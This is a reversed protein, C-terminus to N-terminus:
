ISYTFNLLISNTYLNNLSLGSNMTQGPARGLESKGWDAFEYGLGIQWNDNIIQQVGVGLTYSFGMTTHSAFNSTPQAEFITPANTYTHAQNLGLGLSASIWPLTWYGRDALLKGKLAIGSHRIKYQYNHNNFQLNTDDWIKGQLKANGTTAVALGVQGQLQLFNLGKQVGWFLEGEPLFNRTKKAVYRKSVGPALNFTQTQGASAAGLGVSISTVWSSENDLPACCTAAAPLCFGSLLIAAAGHHFVNKKFLM